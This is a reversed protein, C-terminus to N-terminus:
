NKEFLRHNISGDPEVIWTYNGDEGNKAGPVQVKTRVVGDGGTIQTATGEAAFQDILKPFAHNDGQEIQGMVKPTYTTGPLPGANAEPAVGVERVGLGPLREEGETMFMVM